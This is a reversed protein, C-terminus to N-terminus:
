GVWVKISMFALTLHYQGIFISRSWWATWSAVEQHSCLVPSYCGCQHDLATGIATTSDLLGTQRTRYWWRRGAWWSFMKTQQAGIGPTTLEFGDYSRGHRTRCTHSGPFLLRRGKPASTSSTPSTTYPASWTGGTHFSKPSVNLTIDVLHNLVNYAFRSSELPSDTWSQTLELNLWNLISDNNSICNLYRQHSWFPTSHIRPHRCVPKKVGTTCFFFIADALCSSFFRVSVCNDRMERLDMGGKASEGQYWTPTFRLGMLSRPTPSQRHQAVSGPSVGLKWVLAFVLFCM